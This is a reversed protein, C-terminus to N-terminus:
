SGKSWGEVFTKAGEKENVDFWHISEDRKFWTMQKKILQMTSIVIRELLQEQSYKKELFEITEKYGVSKMPSWGVLGQDLLSQVEEVLGKEIMKVARAEIRKRLHVKDMKLGVKISDNKPLKSYNMKEMEKKLQSFKKNQTKMVEVARRIRYHDNESIAVTAEIDNEKLWLYLDSMGKEDIWTDINKKIALPTESNPFMGKELAQIYFGSGGVFILDSLSKEDIVNVVDDVYDAVTLTKPAEVYDFLYHPVSRMEEKTPKATGINLNKYVQLSDCNVIPLQLAEGLSTALDSKGVGTPGVIYIYKPSRAM